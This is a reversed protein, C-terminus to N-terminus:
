CCSSLLVREPLSSSTRPALVATEAENMAQQENMVRRTLSSTAEQYDQQRKSNRFTARFNPHMRKTKPMTGIHRTQQQTHLLLLGQTTTGHLAPTFAPCALPALQWPRTRFTAAAM